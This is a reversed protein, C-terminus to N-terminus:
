PRPPHFVADAVGDPASGLAGPAIHAADHVLALGALAPAEPASPLSPCVKACAGSGCFPACRGEDDDDGCDTACPLDGDHAALAAARPAGSVIFAVLLALFVQAARAFRRLPPLM